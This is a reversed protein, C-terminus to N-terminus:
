GGASDRAGDLSRKLGDGTRTEFTDRFKKKLEDTNQGLAKAAKIDALLGQEVDLLQDPNLSTLTRAFEAGKANSEAFSKALDTGSKKVAEISAVAAPGGTNKINVGVELQNQDAM